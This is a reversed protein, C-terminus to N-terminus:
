CAWGCRPWYDGGGGKVRTILIELVNIDAFVENGNVEEVGVRFLGQVTLVEIENVEKTDQEKALLVSYLWGNCHFPCTDFWRPINGCSTKPQGM